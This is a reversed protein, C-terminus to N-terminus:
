RQAAAFLGRVVCRRLMAAVGFAPDAVLATDFAAGLTGGSELTALFALDAVTIRELVLGAPSRRVLVQEPGAGLDVERVEGPGQHAEWITLVPWRSAVLRVSPALRFKLAPIADVGTTGITRVDLAVADAARAAEERAWELEAVDAFYAYEGTGFRQRLYPPFPGGIHHLDGSASPHARQFERALIAFFDAGCLAAIVPFELALAKGFGARLNNRYIAIRDAAGIGGDACIEGEIETSEDYLSAIFRQQLERLPM